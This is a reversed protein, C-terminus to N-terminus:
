IIHDCLGKEIAEDAFYIVDINKETLNELEEDTLDTHKRFIDKMLEWDELSYKLDIKDEQLTTRGYKFSNSQHILVRAYRTIYRHGKTGSMLIKSGGSCVYGNCRTEIVIGKEQWFEMYSIMSFVDWVVGGFCSLVIVIPRRDEMPKDYEQKALKNLQRVFMTQSERDIETDLYIMNKNLYDSRKMEDLMTNNQQMIMEM